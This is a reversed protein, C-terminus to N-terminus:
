LGGTVALVAGTIYSAAESALYVIADAVEDARAARHMPTNLAVKSRFDAATGYKPHYETKEHLPTDVLGVQVANIRVGTDANERALGITMAELGAKAVGYPISGNGAGGNRAAFASVNVIAGRKQELMAPLAFRTALYASRLNFAQIQDWLEEGCELFPVRKIVGGVNNVLVDLGGFESIGVQVASEVARADTADGRVARARHGFGNLETLLGAAAEDDRSYTVLVDAGLRAFQLACARGIGSTGGTIMARRGDFEGDRLLTL